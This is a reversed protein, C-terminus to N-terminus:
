LAFISFPKLELGTETLMPKFNKLVIVVTLMRYIVFKCYIFKYFNSKYYM